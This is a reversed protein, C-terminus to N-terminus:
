GAEGPEEGRALPRKAAKEPPAGVEGKVGEGADGQRSGPKVDPVKPESKVAAKPLLGLKVAEAANEPNGVFELMQEPDNEFRLRTRADLQSFVGRVLAVRDMSSQFDIASVDAYQMPLDRGQPLIGTKEYRKMLVNINCDDKFSQQTRDEAATCAVGVRVRSGDYASRIRPLTAAIRDAEPATSSKKTSM